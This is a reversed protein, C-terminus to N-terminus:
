RRIVFLTRPSSGWKVSIVDGNRIDEYKSPFGPSQELPSKPHDNNYMTVLHQVHGFLLQQKEVPTEFTPTDGLHEIFWNCAQEDPLLISFEAM